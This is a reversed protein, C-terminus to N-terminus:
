VEVVEGAAEAIALAKTLKNVDSEGVAAILAARDAANTIDVGDMGQDKIHAAVKRALPFLSADAPTLGADVLIKDRATKHVVRSM